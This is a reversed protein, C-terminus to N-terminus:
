HATRAEREALPLHVVFTSGEGLRSQVSLTGGSAAAVRNVISLGLGTGPRDGMRPSRYFPEFARAAEDKSMGVGNDSVRLDYGGASRAGSIQVDPAVAPRHYKVANEILNTIAQRLLGENCTVEAHDVSVRLAGHEQEVRPAVDQAVLTVVAAPDCRGKALTEVRALMLLDDVLAEMRRTGRRLIEMSRETPGVKAGLPTIALTITTLAGRIDHAVRGAFADLETNRAELRQAHRATEEERLTIQRSAWRGVFWTGVIAALGLGLLTLTLWFRTMSFHALSASAGRDNIAILQDFDRDVRAFQAAVKDMITRAEADRNEESLVLAHAIPADLTSLDARTRDWAPRESPLNAWPDYARITAAIRADLASLEVQVSAMQVPETAFIHDDVLIRRREVLSELQGVLRISTLTNDVIHRANAELRQTQVVAFLTALLAGVGLLVFSTRALRASPASLGDRRGRASSPPSM